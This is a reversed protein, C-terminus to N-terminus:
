PTIPAPQQDFFVLETTGLIIPPPTALVFTKSGQGGSGPTVEMGGEFEADTDASTARTPVGPSANVVYVGNQSKVTQNKALFTNSPALLVGDVTIGDATVALNINGTSAANVGIVNVNRNKAGPSTNDYATALTPTIAGPSTNDYATANAPTIAGPSTNDFATALSPAIATPATNDWPDSLPM